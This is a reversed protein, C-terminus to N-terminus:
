GPRALTPLRQQAIRYGRALMTRFCGGQARGTRFNATPKVCSARCTMREIRPKRPIIFRIATQKSRSTRLEAEVIGAWPWIKIPLFAEWRASFAALFSRLAFRLAFKFCCFVSRFNALFCRFADFLSYFPEASLSPCPKRSFGPMASLLTRAM